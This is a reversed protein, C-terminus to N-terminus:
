ATPQENPTHPPENPVVGVIIEIHIGIVPAGHIFTEGVVFTHAVPLREHM